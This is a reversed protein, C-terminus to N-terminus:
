LYNEIIRIEKEDDKNVLVALPPRTESPAYYACKHASRIHSRRQRHKVIEPIGKTEAEIVKEKDRKLLPYCCCFGIFIDM